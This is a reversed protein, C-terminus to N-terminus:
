DERAGAAAEAEALVAAQQMWLVARRDWAAIQDFHFIGLRNLERELRPGIGRIEKLNDRGGPRPRRLGPPQGYARYAPLEAVPDPRAPPTPVVVAEPEEVTPEPEVPAVVPRASWASPRPAPVVAARPLPTESASARKLAAQEISAALRQVPTPPVPAPTLAAAPALNARSRLVFRRLPLALVLLLAGALAALPWYTVLVANLADM